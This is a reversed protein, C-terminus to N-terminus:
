SVRELTAYVQRPSSDMFRKSNLLDRVQEKEAVSLARAPRPRPQPDAQPQRARYLSSRPVNLVRCAEKVGIMQALEEAQRIM